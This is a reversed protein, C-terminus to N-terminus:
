VEAIEHAVRLCILEGFYLAFEDGEEDVGGLGEAEGLGDALDVAEVEGAFGRKGEVVYYFLKLDAFAGGALADAEEFAYVGEVGGVERAFAAIVESGLETEVADGVAEEFFSHKRM